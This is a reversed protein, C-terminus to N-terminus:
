KGPALMGPAIVVLRDHDTHYSRKSRTNPAKPLEGIAERAARKVLTARHSQMWPPKAFDLSRRQIMDDLLALEAATFETMLRDGPPPARPAARRKTGPEGRLFAASPLRRM